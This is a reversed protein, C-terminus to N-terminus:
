SHWESPDYGAAQLMSLIDDPSTGRNVCASITSYVLGESDYLTFKIPNEDDLCTLALPGQNPDTEMRYLRWFAM